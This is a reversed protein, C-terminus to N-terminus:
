VRNMNKHAQPEIHQYGSKTALSQHSPRTQKQSDQLEKFDFSM